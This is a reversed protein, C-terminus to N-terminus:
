TKDETTFDQIIDAVEASTVQTRGEPVEVTNYKYDVFYETSLKLGDVDDLLGILISNNGVYKGATLRWWLGSGCIKCNAREAFESSQFASINKSGHVTLNETKVSVGKLASGVWRQCMKCHCISFTDAMDKASFTVAGCMCQGTRDTM